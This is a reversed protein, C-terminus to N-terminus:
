QNRGLERKLAAGLALIGSRGESARGVESEEKERHNEVGVLAREAV